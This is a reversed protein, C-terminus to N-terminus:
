WGQNDLLKMLNRKPRYADRVEAVVGPFETARGAQGVLWRITKLLDVAEAYAQNNTAAVVRDIHHGGRDVPRELNWPSFARAIWHAFSHSTPRSTSRSPPTMTRLSSRPSACAASTMEQEAYRLAIAFPDSITPFASPLPDLFPSAFSM